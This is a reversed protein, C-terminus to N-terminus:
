ERVRWYIVSWTLLATMMLGLVWNSVSRTIWMEENQGGTGDSESVAGSDTNSDSSGTPADSLKWEGTDLETFQLTLSKQGNAEGASGNWVAFALYVNDAEGFDPDYKGSATNERVFVVSWGDDTREGTASVSQDPAYTLSGYGTAYYNQAFQDYPAQSLPNGAARAPQTVNDSQPYSYMSGSASGDDEQWSARWYWIDVPKGAAGMTIPPKDGSRLMIAAADSYDQPGDLNADETGDGWTLRFATHTDNRVTQVTLEDVSGGGFPKAMQQQSLSVTREPAGAWEDAAPNAPVSEVATVPQTGGTVAAAVAAQAIVLAAVVVVTVVTARRAANRDVM